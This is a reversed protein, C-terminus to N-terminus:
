SGAPRRHRCPPLRAGRPGPPHSVASHWCPRTLRKSGLSTSQNGTDGRRAVPRRSATTQGRRGQQGREEHDEGGRASVLAQPDRSTVSTGAHGAAHAQHTVATLHLGQPVGLAVLVQEDASTDTGGAPRRATRGSATRPRRPRGARAGSPIGAHLQVRGRRSRRASGRAPGPRPPGAAPGAPAGHRPRRGPQSADGRAASAAASCAAASSPRSAAAAGASGAPARSSPRPRAARRRPGAALPRATGAVPQRRVSASTASPTM